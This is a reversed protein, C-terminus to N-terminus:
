PPTRPAPTAGDAMVTGASQPPLDLTRRRRAIAEFPARETGTLGLAEALLKITHRQPARSVGREIDGVSRPSVGAREALEDQTLGVTMRCRRLLSGFDLAPRSESDM